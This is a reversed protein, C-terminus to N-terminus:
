RQRGLAPILPTRWWEKDNKPSIANQQTPLIRLLVEALIDKNLLCKTDPPQADVPEFL